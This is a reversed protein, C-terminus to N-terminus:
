NWTLYVSNGYTCIIHVNSPNSALRAGDNVLVLENKCAPCEFGIYKLTAKRIKEMNSEM